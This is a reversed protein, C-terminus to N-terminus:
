PTSGGLRWATPLTTLPVFGGTLQTANMLWFGRQGTIGNQWVLDPSADGNFDGAGAISWELPITALHEFNAALATGNLLWFGRQGTVKNEIVLDPSGNSDFDATAAIHWDAPVQILLVFDAKLATGDLLWFGREGTVVNEIVLDPKGDGDFDNAGVIRWNPSVTILPVFASALTTGNMLWFGRQGTTRNEWVLDSHGDGNFDASAVCVWEVPIVGLDAYSGLQTLGNMLWIARQGTQVNQWLLDPMGDRNFDSIRPRPRGSDGSLTWAPSLSTLTVFGGQVATGNMLWFGRVGSQSNEWLLDTHGDQNYDGAKAIRWALDIFGLEVGSQFTTGNMLWVSRQGTTTEQWVLDPKSDRNFDGVAAISWNTSVTGLSVFGGQNTGNLLWLVREGTSRNEWVLDSKGDGNFDGSGAINWEVAVTALTVFDGVVSAGNMLWFGRQGTSTNQWVLDAQNDGNFDGTAAIAWHTTLTGLDVSAGQQSAGNLYWLMRQGTRENQWVLDSHADGNFDTGLGVPVNVVAAQSNVSGSANTISVAYSGANQWGGGPVTYLASTAGAIMQGDRWWQYQLVGAGSATVQLNIPTNALLTGGQPQTVIVPAGMPRGAGATWDNSFSTFLNVFSGQLQTGDMLWFGREGTVRNEWMLDPQRDNNFDGSGAISWELPISGLEVGSKFLFDEMLWISRQGTVRNQWVLDPSGNADFDNVTAISWDVSVTALSVFAGDRVTGNMLWLGREGTVLNQWVLDTQGDRDFDGAGAISWETSVTELAVFGGDLSTGDMIWFGRQGTVINQWVLDTEQDGNFDGTAAIMWEAGVNGLSVSESLSTDNMLWVIREGTQTNQWIIDSRRDNNFDATPREDVTLQASFSTATGISNTAVLRYSGVDNRGVAPITFSTSTAGTIDVANKQWQYTISSNGTAAATFTVSMGLKVTKGVPDVSIQPAGAVLPQNVSHSILTLDSKIITFAVYGNVLTVVVGRDDSLKFIRLPIGPVIRSGTNEYTIRAWRQLETGDARPRISLFSDPLWVGDAVTNELMAVQQLQANLIRGNGTLVLAGDASFRFPLVAASVSTAGGEPFVGTNPVTIYEVGQSFYQSRSYLRRSSSQWAHGAGWYSWSSLSKLEGVAGVIIRLDASSSGRYINLFTLDDLALLSFAVNSAPTYGFVQEGVSSAPFLDSLSGDGYSLAVRGNAPAYSSFTPRGKLPLTSLFEEAVSNWRVIGKESRSVMYVVGAADVFTDEISYKKDVPSTAVSVTRPSMTASPVKTVSPNVLLTAPPGFAFTDNNKAFISFSSTGLEYIATEAYGSGGHAALTKGRLVIPTGNNLFVLDDFPLGLSAAYSTTEASYIVSSTDFLLTEDPSLYQRTGTIFDGDNPSGSSLAIVGSADVSFKLIRNSWGDGTTFLSKTVTSYVPRATRALSGGYYGAASDPGPALTTRNWSRTIEGEQYYVLSGVGFLAQITATSTTVPTETLLSTSRRVLEQNYAIFVGEATPLFATPVKTEPLYVLPLWSESALNYRMIRGPSRALFYVVDGLKVADLWPRIVSSDSWVVRVEPSMAIGGENTVLVHYLGADAASSPYKSYSSSNAGPIAVGDKFWQYTLPGSGTFNGGISLYSDASITLYARWLTVSPLIAPLVVLDAPESTVTGGDNTVTVSYSGSDSPVVSQISYYSSTANPILQGNKRWNFILNPSGTVQVHFSASFNKAVEASAPHQTITPPVVPSVTVIVSSSTAAGAANSAKLIYTGADVAKAEYRYFFQSTANPIAVGDKYWQFAIPHTGTVSASFSFYGNYSVNQTTPLGSITPPIVPTVTLVATVSTATGAINTVVYRFQDGSMGLTASEVMLNASATGKYHTDNTLDVWTATGVPLRQWQHVFPSSGQVYANFYATNGAVITQSNPHSYISPPTAAEVTLVASTSTASGAANTAVCRFQDGNASLAVNTLILSSTGTGSYIGGDALDAWVGSGVASRQWLYTMPYTGYAYAYFGASNGETTTQSYPNNGFAPPTGASVSLSVANSTASGASNTVVCRYQDGSMATNVTVITVSMTQSGVFNGTDSLNTWNGGTVLRQWQYGVAPHGGASAHFYASEGAIRSQGFPQYFFTPAISATTAGYLVQAGTIDDSSLTDLDTIYSNMMAVVNQQPSAQDPHGLGLLHGLEHLAVRRIDTASQEAGRYSNWSYNNNFIIDGQTRKSTGNARRTTASYTVAVALVNYDFATGYITSDFGIENISNSNVPAAAAAVQDAIQVTSIMSNWLQIASQVSTNYTSGDLLAPSTGLQVKVAVSGADWTVHHGTDNTNLSYAWADTAVLVLALACRKVLLCLTKM